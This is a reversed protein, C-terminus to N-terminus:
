DLPWCRCGQLYGDSLQAPPHGAKADNWGKTWLEHARKEEEYGKQVEPDDWIDDLWNENKM